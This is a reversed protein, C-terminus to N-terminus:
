SVFYVIVDKSHGLVEFFMGKDRSLGFIYKDKFDSYNILIFKILKDATKFLTEM